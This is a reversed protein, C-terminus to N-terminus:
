LSEMIETLERYLEDLKDEEKRLEKESSAILKKAEALTDCGFKSKLQELL